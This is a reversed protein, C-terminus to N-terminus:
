TEAWYQRAERRTAKRSSFIRIRVTNEDVEQFTHHVVLLRGGATRGLTFWREERESHAVDLCSLARADAFVTGAEAFSVRHKQRNQREKNPDWEFNYRM